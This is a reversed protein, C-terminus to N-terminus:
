RSVPNRNRFRRSFQLIPWVSMLWRTALILRLQRGFITSAKKLVMPRESNWFYRGKLYSQYAAANVTDRQMLRREEEGSLRLKLKGTM